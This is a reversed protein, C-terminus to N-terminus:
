LPLYAVRNIWEEASSAAWILLLEEVATNPALEQSVIILGASEQSGIFTAFHAPMTSEDHSVLLRGAGAAEALVEADGLGALGADAASRFDVSPERRLLKRVIMFNLDADAQFRVRV